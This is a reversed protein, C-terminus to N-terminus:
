VGHAEGRNEQVGSHKIEESIVELNPNIQNELRNICVDFGTGMSAGFGGSNAVTGGTSTDPDGFSLVDFAKVEAGTQRGGSRSGGSSLRNSGGSTMKLKGTGRQSTWRDSEEDRASQIVSLNVGELVDKKRFIDIGDLSLNISLEGTSKNNSTKPNPSRSKSNQQYEPKKPKKVTKPNKPNYSTNLHEQLTYQNDNLEGPDDRLGTRGFGEEDEGNKVFVALDLKGGKGGRLVGEGAESLESPEYVGDVSGGGDDGGVRLAGDEEFRWSYDPAAFGGSFGLNEKYHNYHVKFRLNQVVKKYILENRESDQDLKVMRHAYVRANDRRESRLQEKKHKETKEDNEIKQLFKFYEDDLNAYEHEYDTDSGSQNSPFRNKRSTSRLKRTKPNNSYFVRKDLEQKKFDTQPILTQHNHGNLKNRPNIPKKATSFGLNQSNPYQPPRISKQRNSHSWPEILAKKPHGPSDKIGQYGLNQEKQPNQLKKKNNSNLPIISSIKSESDFLQKKIAMGDQYDRNSGNELTQVGIKATSGGFNKLRFKLDSEIKQGSVPVSGDEVVGVVGMHVGVQRDEALNQGFIENKLNETKSEFVGNGAEGAGRESDQSDEDESFDEVLQQVSKKPKYESRAVSNFNDFLNQSHAARHVRALSGVGGSHNSGRFLDAYRNKESTDGMSMFKSNKASSDNKRSSNPKMEEEVEEQIEKLPKMLSGTQEGVASARNRKSSGRDLKPTNALNGLTMSMEKTPSLVVGGGIAGMTMRSPSDLKPVENSIPSSNSVNSHSNKLSEKEQEPRSYPDARQPQKLNNFSIRPPSATLNRNQFKKQSTLNKTLPTNTARSWDFMEDDRMSTSNSYANSDYRSAQYPSNNNFHSNQPNQSNQLAHPDNPHRQPNRPISEPNKEKQIQDMQPKHISTRRYQDRSMNSSIHPNLHRPPQKSTNGPTTDRRNPQTRHWSGGSHGTQFNQKGHRELAFKSPTHIRAGGPGYEPNNPGGGGLTAGRYGGDQEYYGIERKEVGQYFEGYGDHRPEVRRRQPERQNRYAERREIHENFERSNDGARQYARDRKLGKHLSNEEERGYQNYNRGGQGGQPQRRHRPPTRSPYHGRPANQLRQRAYPSTHDQFEEFQHGSTNRPRRQYPQPHYTDDELYNTRQPGTRPKKMMKPNKPQEQHRHYRNLNPSNNGFTDTLFQQESARNQPKSVENDRYPYSVKEPIKQADERWNRVPLAHNSETKGFRHEITEVKQQNQLNQKKEIKQSKQDFITKESNKPQIVPISAEVAIDVEKLKEEGSETNKRKGKKAGKKKKKKKKKDVKRGAEAAVDSLRYEVPIHVGEDLLRQQEKQRWRDEKEVLFILNKMFVDKKRKAEKKMKKREARMMDEYQGRKRDWGKVLKLYDKGMFRSIDLKTKKGVILELLDNSTFPAEGEVQYVEGTLSRYRHLKVVVPSGAVLMKANLAKFASFKDKFIVVGYSSPLGSTEKKKDSSIFANAIEGFISFAQELEEDTVFELIYKVLIKRLNLDLHMRELEEKELYPSTELRRNYLFIESKLINESTTKDACEVYGSGVCKLITKNDAQVEKTTLTVKVIKGYESFKSLVSEETANGPLCGIYVKHSM